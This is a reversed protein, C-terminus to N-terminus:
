HGSFRLTITKSTYEGPQADNPFRVEILEHNSENKVIDAGQASAIRAGYADMQYVSGSLGNLLLEVQKRDASWSEHVIKLNSSTDGLAPLEGAIALQFDDQVPIEISARGSSLTASVTPHQDGAMQRVKISRGIRAHLSVGPSFTVRCDRESSSVTKHLVAQLTERAPTKGYVLDVTGGCAPVNKASWSSWGAPTHPAVVIENETAASTIGLLGRMLPSVVMASSWIQHPCSTPLPEYHSGSLVETVHGLAGDFVLHANAQLNAYAAL